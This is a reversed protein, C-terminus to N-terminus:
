LEPLRLSVGRERNLQITLDRDLTDLPAEKAENQLTTYHLTSGEVRYSLAAQITSGEFAFLYLPSANASSQSQIERGSEDYERLVPRAREVVAPQPPYVITVAPQAASSYGYNYPVTPVDSYGPWYGGVYPYTVYSSCPYSYPCGYNGIGWGWGLGLGWGGYYAGGYFGRGAGYGGPLGPRHGFGSAGFGGRGGRGISPATMGGRAGGGMGGRAGGMGGRQAHAALACFLAIPIVFRM